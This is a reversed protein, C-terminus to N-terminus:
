PLPATKIKWQDGEKAFTWEKTGLDASSASESRMAITATATDGTVTPSGKVEYAITDLKKRDAPSLTVGTAFLKKYRDPLSKVDNLESVLVSIKRGDESGYTPGTPPTSSCGVVVGSLLILVFSFFRDRM